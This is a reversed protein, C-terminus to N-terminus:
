NDEFKEITLLLKMRTEQYVVSGITQPSAIFPLNYFALEAAELLTPFADLKKRLLKCPDCATAGFIPTECFDCVLLEM